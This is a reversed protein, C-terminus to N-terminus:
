MLSPKKKKHGKFMTSQGTDTDHFIVEHAEEVGPVELKDLLRSLVVNAVPYDRVNNQQLWDEYPVEVYVLKVRAKYTTFLDIWQARMQRTINTANWAFSEGKRLFTRAQEKAAQVVWGTAATDSPALQHERRIADLSVVPLGAHHKRLYTDKGMGPLGSVMVVTGKLDDFPEYDPYGDERQFYTFRALDSPFHRPTGWCQQEECLAEFFAIRELLDNQDACTRGLADARALLSVLRLDVRLSAEIVAKAPSRKDMVWLPLGHYRVLAAVEERIAFPAPVQEFLVRRATFEGKRAHGHSSIRGDADQVTTSRKEVDHLLAAAWLVEQKQAPLQRYGDLSTLAELVQRTHIAVNGEAHHIPDQPVHRMDAVWDFAHELHSWEKNISLKWEM